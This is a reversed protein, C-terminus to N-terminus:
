YYLKKKMILFVFFDDVYLAIIIKVSKDIKTFLCPELNSKKYGLSLLLEEVRQYWARSSQKLGYIARKLRLVKNVNNDSCQFGPPKMMYVNENLFGNLFATDVDLHCIDLNLQVALAFLLRLTSHRVVPSFCEDFDIGPRQTFGKAVLRARYRVKNDNDLKRKFVWRCQVITGSPPIDVLEWADNDNFSKFESQM